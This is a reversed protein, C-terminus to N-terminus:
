LLPGQKGTSERGAKKFMSRDVNPIRPRKGQFLEALTLIQLRPFSDDVGDRYGGMAAARRKIECTPLANTVVVGIPRRAGRRRFRGATESDVALM